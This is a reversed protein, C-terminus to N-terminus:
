AFLRECPKQCNKEDEDDVDEEEEDDASLIAADKDPIYHKDAVSDDDAVLSTLTCNPATFGETDVDEFSDISGVDADSGSGATSPHNSLTSALNLM